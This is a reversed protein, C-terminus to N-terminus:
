GAHISRDARRAAREARASWACAGGPRRAPDVFPSPPMSSVTRHLVHEDALIEPGAAPAARHRAAAPTGTVQRAGPLARLRQALADGRAADWYGPAM